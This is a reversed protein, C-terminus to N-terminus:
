QISIPVRIELVSAVPQGNETAPFFRWTKFTSLLLRNLTPNDTAQIMEVEASGDAAVHFRAVAVTEIRRRRLEDPFDPLPRYIARAGTQGGTPARAAPAAAAPPTAAPAPPTPAPNEVARPAAPRPEPRPRPPPAQRKVVPPPPPEKIEPVPPPPEVAAPPPPTPAAEAPQPPGPLTVLQADITLPPPVDPRRGLSLLQAFAAVLGAALLLALPGTWTLREWPSDRWAAAPM